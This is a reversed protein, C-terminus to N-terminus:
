VNDQLWKEVATATSDAYEELISFHDGPVDVAEHPLEWFSRWQGHHENDEELLAPSFPDLASLLVTPTPVPKPRWGDFIRSYAGMAALRIDSLLDFGSERDAMAGGMANAVGTKAMHEPSSSDVLVVAQPSIGQQELLHAVEHALWGSASRGVLAFKRGAARERVANAHMLALADITAPLEEGKIFGPQPIAWVERSTGFGAAFRAFEHPGAVPAFSPFCILLPEADGTALRVTAPAEAPADAHFMPRLQSAAELLHVSEEIKGLECAQWYLAALPGAADDDLSGSQFVASGSEETATRSALHEALAAPTSFDFVVTAPLAVDLATALRNRLEMASLSDFGQELFAARADVEAASQHGLVGAAHTRVLELLTEAREEESMAALRQALAPEDSSREATRASRRARVLDSLVPPLAGTRAQERLVANDVRMPVLDPRGSSICADLVRLAEDTEWAVAGGRSLRARDKDALRGSIGDAALWPAWALSTAPLGITRRHRALADLFGNAACYNAQGPSGVVAGASSFLVFAALDRDATLEHLNLAGDVKPRLVHDLRDPTLSDLLGDEVACALHVVAALEPIDALVAALAARDAVDCAVHRIGAGDRGGRRSLLVVDTVGHRDLLHRAVAPALGGSGGTILVTGSTPFLAQDPETVTTRALRPVQIEGARVAVQPEGSGVAAALLDGPVDGDLHVIQFRDPHELQASRLLAWLPAAVLESGRTVFVLRSRAFRSESVWARLRDVAAATATRIATPVEGAWPGCPVLVAEPVEDLESLGAAVRVPIDADALAKAVGSRDDGLVAIDAPAADGPRSNWELCLVAHRGPEPQVDGLQVSEVSLVPAGTDDALLVSVVDAGATTLRARVSTAGAAHLTVGSWAVPRRDDGTLRLAAALLEPHIGVGDTSRDADLAIEACIEDGRQWVGPEVEEAEAPPWELLGASAAGAALLTATAHRTWSDGDSSAYCTATGSRVLVQVDVDAGALPVEVTLEGIRDCGIREGARLVLEVLDTDSANRLHGTLLVDEGGALSVVEHAEAGDAADDLWYRQHQFAYTPLDARRPRWTEFVRQWDVEGGDVHLRAVADLVGTTEPRNRRSTAICSGPVCEQAMATLVADPGVEVFHRVGKEHLAHVGDAFRVAARVHRGWYEPTAIDDCVEGTVNSVVPVAAARYTLRAAVEAFEALMPEVLASHFAHSVPLRKAKEFRAAVASVADEPGSIVTSRPGNVAAISVEDTLVRRVDQETARLSVMAGGAPLEQMLRARAAVLAAADDLDLVGAVHAAALEGVSHGLVLDARVGWHELLRYMAVEFAFLGTQAYATQDLLAAAPSGEAAHIVERVGHPLHGALHEDLLDCADDFATAFVPFEQHLARGMGLRQSGQGSFLVGVRGPAAAAEQPPSDAIARLGSTLEDRSGVVAARHAFASRGTALTHGVDAIPLGPASEVHSLLRSAQDRLAEPSKGSLVWASVTADPRSDDPEEVAQELVLHANTGSVGFSSVGARRPRGTDPWPEPETLLRVEGASWDVHGTPEDVHLTKPLVGRRMAQVTKIVGGVGAAGLTHGINSKLSGLLLPRERDQGYTALLAQAEIPDGLSTGTGHAEVADVDSPRLGASALAQRIVRQQSPGNPATLGNSAGDQNVASGRLVALVQHGNRRADSLRELVVIGIGEGWATGDAAAAFAKCRGDAALGRQRSFEIFAAPTSMITVGGALALSCEGGRLAQAALHISVLSSSCATDVTMTPGELGLAYAVRGSLVSAASGNGLYGALEPPISRLRSAYDSSVMGAFVGTRSGRLSQPDIGARELAEWSVELMLRQQPDMALAERPGIGFFGSDFDAADLVFGGYRTYSKGIADPDPDYAGDVDWGRDAPFPSIADGGTAVLRWLDDASDVGGPYRCGMGVIAIPEDAVAGAGVPEAVPRAEGRLVAGIHEALVAPTPYDFVLTAPLPVGATRQLLNRFEVATMSDFGLNQFPQDPEIEQGSDHGLVAAASSRVLGLLASRREPEPLDALGLEDAAEIEEAPEPATAALGAPAAPPGPWFRKHQFPYTPLEVIGAARADLVAEWNVPVNAVHLRSLATMVASVESRNRRCTPIAEAVGCEQAMPALVADPGVEVFCRVGNDQMWRVGDAFRVANRAHDVWHDPTFATVPSGTVNSVVPLRPPFYTVSEAVERFEALVPEVLPSHFAHSVRLRRTKRGREALVEAIGLVEEADGSIVAADPGNVAALSVRETLLPLVEAAPAQVSVMAGGTPLAQMLRGRAAILKAADGLTLAGSVHAAAFEGVSHGLLVAPHVGWHELLRFLAVEFAFLGVQTCATREILESGVAERVPVDLHRDLEYCVADFARAFAPFEAALERGMGIRQSGQGSFLFGVQGPAGAVGRVVSQAPEARALATLGDTLEAATRGLVVARHEHLARTRLLSLAVDATGLGAAHAALDAAQERLAAGSRASLVWPVVGDADVASPPEPEPGQEIIVHANTGSIGFSSVGARRPRGTEPWPRAGTLVEVAGTSWDVHRSPQDVHLTRPLTGHRMALVSKIVGAVGAAAQAHGINSKLSGLLLPRQRDQGYTALVAHAEIPDGLSTGTGHAEVYDVDSPALGAGTLAQRIVAEQSPGNPATLGNSAGDQNVASGRLVALVRHDNRRADSLRELLLMGVGEAFGTGDAASSFAKCRFDPAMGGQQQFAVLGDPMCIVSVGGALALSCEGGRLAQAALHMAVLSSSCATDVTVAPGELGFTYAIRGSLISASTSTALYGDGGGGSTILGLYDQGHTGTFVGTRSGRLATPDLGAREFTEWTIELLLRQQPDMALAERPSIGFFAADFGGPERLFGGSVPHPWGREEPVPAIADAESDVLRWLDEPSRVGGPFRCAMGVIAIQEGPGDVQQKLREVEKLSDRLAAVLQGTSAEM